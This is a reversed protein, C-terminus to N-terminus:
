CFLSNQIPGSREMNILLLNVTSSNGPTKKLTDRYFVSQGVSVFVFLVVLHSCFGEALRAAALESALPYFHALIIPKEVPIENTSEVIEVIRFTSVCSEQERKDCHRGIYGEACACEYSNIDDICTSGNACLNSACENVDVFCIYAMIRDGPLYSYTHPRFVLCYSSYLTHQIIYEDTPLKM